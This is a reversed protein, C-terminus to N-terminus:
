SPVLTFLVVRASLSRNWSSVRFKGNLTEGEIEIIKAASCANILEVIKPATADTTIISFEVYYEPMGIESSDLKM